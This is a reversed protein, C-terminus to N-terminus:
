SAMEAVTPIDDIISCYNKLTQLAILFLNSLNEVQNEAAIFYPISEGCKFMKLLLTEILIYQMKINKSVSDNNLAM